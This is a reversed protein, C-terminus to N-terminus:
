RPIVDEHDQLSISIMRTKSVLTKPEFGLLVVLNNKKNVLM